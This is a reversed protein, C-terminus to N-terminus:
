WKLEKQFYNAKVSYKGLLKNLESFNNFENRHVGETIFICDIKLNNAGKIDTRLNDGIALVKENQGFCMKYIEKHPKGFYVVEGGIDEFVKAVSGACLEEDTGRHVILDPNTCVLKKSIHNKLYNRYYELDDEHDDFLGTCIIFDCSELDVRNDKVKEFVSTDRPPGLHFFSKGFKNKNIAHMAAEGSTMVNSLYKKNMNMKLLFNIVKSSPRPANSLFVIKKSNKELQEIAEIAKPNLVMGNHVVGWLDIVFTDYNKYIDSLHNLEKM